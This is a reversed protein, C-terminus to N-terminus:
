QQQQEEQEEFTPRLVQEAYQESFLENHLYCLTLLGDNWKFPWTFEADTGCLICKKIEKRIQRM